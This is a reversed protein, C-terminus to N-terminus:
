KLKWCNMFAMSLLPTLLLVKKLLNCKLSGKKLSLNHRDMFKVIWEYGPMGDTFPTAIDNVNVFDQLIFCLEQLTPGFGLEVKEKSSNCNREKNRHSICNKQRTKNKNM